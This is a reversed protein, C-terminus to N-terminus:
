CKMLNKVKLNFVRAIVVHRDYSRQDSFLESKKELLELNFVFTIFLDPKGFNSVYTTEDQMKEHMYRSRRM